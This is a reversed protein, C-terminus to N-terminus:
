EPGRRPCLILAGVLQARECAWTGDITRLLDAPASKPPLWGRDWVLWRAGSQTLCALNESRTAESVKVAAGPRQLFLPSPYRCHTPNGLVYTVSGFTLYVVPESGVVSRVREAAALDAQLSRLNGVATKGRTGLTLAEGSWPTQTALMAALVLGAAWRDARGRPLAGTDRPDGRWLAAAQLITLVVIAALSVQLLPRALDLRWGSPLVFAMATWAIWAVLPWRLVGRSRRLTAIALGASLVVLPVAHYVFYQGQGIFGLMMLVVAAAGAAAERAPAAIFFAPILAVTPWRAAVNVLYGRLERLTGANWIDPQLARIDLLWCIEYPALWWILLVALCGCVLAAALAVLGRRRDFALILVLAALAVPLSSVKVLACVALLVGAAAGGTVDPGLLGVGLAAVAVAAAWWDPEGTAPATFMLAAYAALGYAWASCGLRRRLGAYLLAAAGAAVLAAVLRFAAEFLWARALSGPPAGAASVLDPLWSQAASILRFTIPRHSFTEAISYGSVRHVGVEYRINNNVPYALVLLTGVVATLAIWPRRM